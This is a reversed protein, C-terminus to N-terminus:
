KLIYGKNYVNDIIFQNNTLPTIKKRFRSLLQVISNNKVETEYFLVENIEEASFFRNPNAIFFDVIEIENKTISLREDKYKLEKKVLHWTFDNPLVVIDSDSPIIKKELIKVAKKISNVLEDLDFPKTLYSFAQINIANILKEEDSYATLFIIPMEDDTERIKSALDLGSMKPLEVDFIAIDPKEKQFIEYAEEADYAVFINTFYRKLFFKVDEVTEKDDEVYLLKYEYM